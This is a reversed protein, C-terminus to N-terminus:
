CEDSLAYLIVITLYSHKDAQYIGILPGLHWNSWPLDEFDSAALMSKQISGLTWMHAGSPWLFYSLLLM